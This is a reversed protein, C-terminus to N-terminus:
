TRGGPGQGLQKLNQVTENTLSMCEKQTNKQGQKAYVEDEICQKTQTHCVSRRRQMRKATHPM